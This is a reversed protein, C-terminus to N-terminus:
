KECAMAIKGRTKAYKGRNQGNVSPLIAIVQSFYLAFDYPCFQLQVEFYPYSCLYGWFSFIPTFFSFIPHWVIYVSLGLNSRHPLFLFQIARDISLCRAIRSRVMCCTSLESQLWFCRLHLKFFFSFFVSCTSVSLADVFLHKWPILRDNPVLACRLRAPIRQCCISVAVLIGHDM